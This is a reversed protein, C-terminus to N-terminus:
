SVWEYGLLGGEGEGDSLLFLNFEQSIRLISADHANCLYILGNLLPLFPSPLPKKTRRSHHVYEVSSMSSLLGDM